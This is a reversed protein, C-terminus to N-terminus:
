HIVKRVIEKAHRIIKNRIREKEINLQDEISKNEQNLRELEVELDKIRLDKGEIQGLFYKKAEFLDNAWKSVDALEKNVKELKANKEDLEKSADKGNLFEISTKIDNNKILEFFDEREKKYNFAKIVAPNARTIEEFQIQKCKIQNQIEEFIENGKDSNIIIASIGKNDDIEPYINEVGWFDGVIIDATSKEDFKMQCNYCSERLFYDKLFGKMYTDKTFPVIDKEENEYVYEINYNHWGSNKNRFNVKIINNGKEREKEELYRKFIEPSPVGHCIISICILKEYTKDLYKRLGEIQCPTGIYLVKKNNELDEKVNRLILGVNSQLYKSGMIKNLDNPNDIRINQATKGELSVGYVIGKNELINKALLSIIGGSSSKLRTTEDMNRAAYCKIEKNKNEYINNAPCIKKCLGCKTCKDKNIRPYLFGEENKEVEIADHPCINFCAMCGTCKSKHTVYKEELEELKNVVDEIMNDSQEKYVPMKENLIDKIQKENKVLFKFKEVLVDPTITDVPIVYDKYNGFIDLAIGKSKVSYGIVLTPILESYGAISAHTRAAILFSCNSIIFKLEECDYLKEDLVAVREESKYLDKIMKLTDLDNNGEIYVHPILAITYDTQELIYNILSKVSELINNANDTYNSILPSINIGIVKKGQKFISPLEVQRKELSFATDPILMLREKDIFKNLAKYTLTERAVIVDYTKLDRIMENSTIEEFLSAGWLVNKKNKELVCKNTAYLWNPEGYCYNDGGISLCIDINDIEKICDKIYIKEFNMYDFPITKYYEIKEKEEESLENPDYWGKVYRTIIDNYSKKDNEDKTSLIIEGNYKKRIKKITTNVIAECGRNLFTSQGYLLFNLNRKEM